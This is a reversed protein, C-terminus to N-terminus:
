EVSAVRAASARSETTDTGSTSDPAQVPAGALMVTMFALAHLLPARTLLQFAGIAARVWLPGGKPWHNSLRSVTGGRECSVRDTWHRDGALNFPTARMVDAAVTLKRAVLPERYQPLVAIDSVRDERIEGVFDGFSTTSTLNLLSNPAYGHRDGGSILPLSLREALSGVRANEGWSRYGNAELGHIRNGYEILFRDLLAAHRAPGVGALDWLPHNLVLLTTPSANLDDLLESLRVANTRRTYDSLRRFISQASEADLNHVGVHFFAEEFPVTWELSLPPRQRPRSTQLALGAEISDHDTISVFPRLRLVDVIQRTESDLVAEPAVPPHWWGKAFDVAEGNREFYRRMERRFLGAVVPIRDLVHPVSTMAEHSHHTHAHLSVATGFSGSLGPRTLHHVRASRGSSTWGSQM